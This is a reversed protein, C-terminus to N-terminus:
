DHREGVTLQNLIQKVTVLQNPVERNSVPAKPTAISSMNDQGSSLSLIQYLPHQYAILGMQILEMRVQSFRVTGMKLQKMLSPQSYYSLGRPDAVTVLFLYLAMADCSCREFYGDRVLHQDIWSFQPPVQRLRSPNPLLHPSM